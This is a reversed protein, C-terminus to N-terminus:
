LSHVKSHFCKRLAMNSFIHTHTQTHCPRILYHIDAHCNRHCIYQGTIGPVVIAGTPVFRVPLPTAAVSTPFAAAIRGWKERVHDALISIIDSVDNTQASCCLYEGLSGVDVIHENQVVLCQVNPSSEDVTYIHAGDPSCLAYDTQLVPGTQRNVYYLYTASLVLSVLVLLLRHSAASNTSGLSTAASSSTHTAAADAALQRKRLGPSHRSSPM